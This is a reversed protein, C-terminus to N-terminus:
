DTAPAIQPVRLHRFQHKLLSAIQELSQRDRSYLVTDGAEAYPGLAGPLGSGVQFLSGNTQGSCEIRGPQSSYAWGHQQWRPPSEAGTNFCIRARKLVLAYGTTGRHQLSFLNMVSGQAVSVSVFGWRGEPHRYLTLMRRPDPAHLAHGPRYQRDLLLPSSIRYYPGALYHRVLAQGLVVEARSDYVPVITLPLPTVRARVRPEPEPKPEPEPVPTPPPSVSCGALLLSLLLLRILKSRM